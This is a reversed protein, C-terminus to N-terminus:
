KNNKDNNLSQIKKSIDGVMQSKDKHCILIADESDVIVLDELGVTTILKKSGYVLLNKSNFDVHKGRVLHKNEDSVLTDKLSSWSGVDSWGIDLPMVFVNNDNEVIAYEFNIDNMKPYEQQLKKEYEGSDLEKQIKEIMNFIDPIYKKFRNKMSNASFIYMGANWFYGGDKIYKDATEIDPKEVFRDVKFINKSGSDNSIKKIYGYGVEPYTPIIGFTVISEPNKIIFKEGEDIANIFKDNYKIIHDAPFTSIIANPEHKLIVAVALAISSATGRAVPESIINKEPIELIERKIESVYEINTSIYIDEVKFKKRLRLYTEQLMTKDSAIAQFQKPKAKISVPWLRSGTGGAMIVAKNIKKDM